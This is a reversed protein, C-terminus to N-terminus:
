RCVLSCGDDALDVSASASHVSNFFLHLKL